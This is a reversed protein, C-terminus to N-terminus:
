LVSMGAEFSGIAGCVPCVDPREQYVAGCFMCRYVPVEKKEERAAQTPAAAPAEGKGDMLAVYAKLFTREHDREIAAVQDFVRAIDELGERRAVQAFEPYMSRWEQNEGSAAEQINSRSDGLGDHMLKFWLKAHMLENKAMRAFLAAVEENGEKRAQEEFFTYRNRAMSEGQFAAAINKETETGKINAM